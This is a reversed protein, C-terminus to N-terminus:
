CRRLIRDFFQPHHASMGLGFTQSPMRPWHTTVFQAFAFRDAFEAGLNM